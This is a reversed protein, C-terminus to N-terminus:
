IARIILQRVTGAWLGLAGWSPVGHPCGLAASGNRAFYQCFCSSWKAWAIHKLCRCCGTTVALQWSKHRVCVWVSVCVSVCVCVCKRPLHHTIAQALTFRLWRKHQLMAQAIQSAWRCAKKALQKNSQSVSLPISLTSTPYPTHLPSVRQSDSQTVPPSVASSFQPNLRWQM